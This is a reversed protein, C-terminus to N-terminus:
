EFLKRGYFTCCVMVFLTKLPLLLRASSTLRVVDTQKTKYQKTRAHRRFCKQTSLSIEDFFRIVLSLQETRKVNTLKFLFIIEPNLMKRLKM